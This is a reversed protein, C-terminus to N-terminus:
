RYLNPVDLLRNVANQYYGYHVYCTLGNPRLLRWRRLWVGPSHSAAKAGTFFHSPSYLAIPRVLNAGLVRNM